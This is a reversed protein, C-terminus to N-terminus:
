IKTKKEPKKFDILGSTGWNDREMEELNIKLLIGRRDVGSRIMEVAPLDNQSELNAIQLLIVELDSVLQYLKRRNADTLDDKLM